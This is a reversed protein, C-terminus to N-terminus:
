GDDGRLAAIEAELEKIREQKNALKPEYRNRQLRHRVYFVVIGIFSVFAFLSVWAIVTNALEQGVETGTVKLIPGVINTYILGLCWAAVALAFLALLATTIPRGVRGFREEMMRFVGPLFDGM